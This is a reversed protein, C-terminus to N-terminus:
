WIGAREELGVYDCDQFGIEEWHSRMPNKIIGNKVVVTKNMIMERYLTHDIKKRAKFKTKTNLHQLSIQDEQLMRRPIRDEGLAGQSKKLIDYMSPYLKKLMNQSHGKNGCVREYRIALETNITSGGTKGMHLLGYTVDNSRWGADISVKRNSTRAIDKSEINSSEDYVATYM